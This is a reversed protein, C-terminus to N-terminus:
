IVSHANKHLRYSLRRGQRGSLIQRASKATYDLDALEPLLELIEERQEPTVSKLAQPGTYLSETEAGNSCVIEHQDFLIHFYEVEDFDTVYDIGDILLLQKAAVLVEARGFMREAVKARVLVRHQPSVYLDAEPCGGGLAGAKIRIPYLKPSAKLRAADLVRSGIWLIPKAGNDSTLVMDGRQLREVAVDGTETRIMTGRVFCLPATNEIENFIVTYFNTGDTLRLSGSSSNGDPDPTMQLSGAVFTLGNGFVIGDYDDRDGLATSGTGGNITITNGTGFDSLEIHFVDRDDGGDATDGAGLTITDNGLDGNLIDNGAGGVLSDNDHGGSLSDNGAGGYLTDNGLSGSLTDNGDGSGAISDDGYFLDDGSLGEISDNGAGGYVTDNGLDSNITDDGTRGYITDNGRAGLLNDNGEGGDIFDDGEEGNLYDNGTGGLISDNGTGGGVTDNESGGYITDNGAGGIIRDAGAEGHLVDDGPAGDLSEDGSLTDNGAGGWLTDSGSSGYLGDNGTGGYVLDNDDGGRVVDDGLQGWITDAGAGGNLELDSVLTATYASVAQGVGKIVDYYEGSGPPGGLLRASNTYVTETYSQGHNLTARLTTAGASDVSYIYVVTGSSNTYTLLSEAAGTESGAHLLPDVHGEGYILDNGGLGNVIDTGMGGAITEGAATGNITDNTRPGTYDPM